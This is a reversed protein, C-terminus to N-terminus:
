NSSNHLKDKGNKDQKINIIVLAWTKLKKAM